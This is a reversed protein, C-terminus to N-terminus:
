KLMMQLFFFFFLYNNTEHIINTPVPGSIYLTSDDAFLKTKLIKFILPLDNIYILFLIRWLVSGQPVGYKNHRPTSITNNIKASQTRNTLYNKFLYNTTGRIGYYKLKHLLLDHKVIDFAKTFDIVFNGQRVVYSTSSYLLRFSTIVSAHPQDAIHRGFTGSSTSNLRYMVCNFICQM